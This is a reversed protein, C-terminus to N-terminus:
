GNMFTQRKVFLRKGNFFDALMQASLPKAAPGQAEMMLQEFRGQHLRRTILTTGHEDAMIIKCICRTKSVFVVCDRGDLVDIDLLQRALTALAAFGYRGDVPCVVMTVKKDSFDIAM